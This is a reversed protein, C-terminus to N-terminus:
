SESGLTKSPSVGYRERYSAAFRGLHAFGWRGAVEAVSTSGPEALLLDSHARRLRVDRLYSMPTEGITSRFGAQLTRVSAGVRGALEVITWPEGPLEELLDIAAQVVPPAAPPAPELLQRRFPHEVALLLGTLASQVLPRTILSNTVLGEPRDVLDILARTVTWWDRGPGSRLDISSAIALPSTVKRGVLAGLQQEFAARDVKIGALAGGGDFGRFWTKGYPRFVAATSSDAVVTDGGSGNLFRGDLPINVEYSTELDDTDIRVEDSYRLVGVMLPGIRAARVQMEFPRVTRLVSLRHPFYIEAGRMEAEDALSCNASVLAEHPTNDM